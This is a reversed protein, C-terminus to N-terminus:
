KIDWEFGQDRGPITVFDVRTGTTTPEAVAPMAKAVVAHLVLLRNKSERQKAFFGLELAGQPRTAWCYAQFGAQLTL